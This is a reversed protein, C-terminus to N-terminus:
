RFYTSEPADAFLRERLFDHFETYHKLRQDGGESSANYSVYFARRMSSSRNPASRHPTLGHFVAVDGPELHLKVSRSAAVCDDPLMYLEQQEPSLFGHHYGSFL